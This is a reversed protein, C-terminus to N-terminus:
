ETERVGFIATGVRVLTAGEEIAVEFDNSMGMSLHPLAVRQAAALEDRLARLAQFVPRAAEPDDTLPAMTMLGAVELGRMALMDGLEERLEDPSFGHKSEEGSVNVELLVPVIAGAALATRNIRAAIKERDIAHILAFPGIAMETKRSQISGIMHWRLGNIGAVHAARLKDWLEEFRNEGFDYQGHAMAAEIAALPHGKSVAVLTIGAPDRGARAAAAAMRGRVADLNAVIHVADVSQVQGIESM